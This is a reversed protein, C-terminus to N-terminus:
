SEKDGWFRRCSYKSPLTRMRAVWRTLAIVQALTKDWLKSALLLPYAANTREIIQPV